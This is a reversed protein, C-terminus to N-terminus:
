RSEIKKVIGLIYDSAGVLEQSAMESFPKLANKATIKGITEIRWGSADESSEIFFVVSTSKSAKSKIKKELEQIVREPVNGIYIRPTIRHLVLALLRRSKRFTKETSSHDLAVIRM